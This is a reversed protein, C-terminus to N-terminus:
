FYICLYIKCSVRWGGYNIFVRVLVGIVTCSWQVKARMCACVCLVEHTGHSFNLRAVNMGSKIMERLLEVTRSAPGITCVIGTNRATSPESDIDLLCMHELFSDAKSAKMQVKQVFATGGHEHQKNM